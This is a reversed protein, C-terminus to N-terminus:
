SRAFPILVAVASVAPDTADMYEGGDWKHLFEEGSIDLLERAKRDFLERGETETLEQVDSHDTTTDIKPM